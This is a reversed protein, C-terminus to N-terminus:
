GDILMGVLIGLVAALAPLKSRWLEAAEPLLEGFVVFLM